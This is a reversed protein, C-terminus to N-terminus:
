DIIIRKGLNYAEELKASNSRIEGAKNASAHVIGTLKANVYNCIDQFSRLANIGGSTFVDEDGYTLIVGINKNNLGNELIAYLRDIFLKTQASINFWYTPSAFVISDARKIKPYLDTMDDNKVCGESTVMHCSGCGDCPFIKLEQLNIREFTGDNEKIGKILSEILYHCNGNKRPSGNVILVNSKNAM